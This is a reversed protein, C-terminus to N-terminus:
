KNFSQLLKGLILGYFFHGLLWFILATGNTIEPTRNSLATTPFLLIGIIISIVTVLHVVKNPPWNKHQIYKYFVMSLLISIMLHLLFEVFESLAMRNLGPIYDINLLLTYVNINSISEIVKFFLGLVTGSIVGSITSEIFLTNTKKM